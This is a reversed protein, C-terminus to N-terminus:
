FVFPIQKEPYTSPAFFWTEIAYRQRTMGPEVATRHLLFEDFLLVDGAEFIPRAVPLGDCAREVMAPSVAWPFIAGETGTQVIYNLRRPVIDLGPADRGCNSLCMWVNVTRIGQGLFAGDQHWDGITDLPVRRLTSKNMSLAPREGLHAAIIPAVGLEELTEVLEYLMRPSDMTMVGGSDRVFKRRIAVPYGAAPTFPEFWPTTQSGAAHADQGQLAKDIGEVLREVRPKAVLGPVLLCGHGFIAARLVDVSLNDPDVVPLPSADPFLVDPAPPPWPGEPVSRDIHIFADHRLQVLRRELMPEALDRNAQQLMAVADLVRGESAMADATALPDSPTLGHDISPPTM